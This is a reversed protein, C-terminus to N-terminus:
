LFTMCILNVLMYWYYLFLFSLLTMSYSLLTMFYSLLTM